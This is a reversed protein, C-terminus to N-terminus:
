LPNSVQTKIEDYVAKSVGQIVKAMQDINFGKVMVCLIYNNGPFYIIGCDHLQFLKNDSIQGYKHAIVVNDDIGKVLGDKFETESLFFLAKESNKNNIYTSNYLVRLFSAYDKITMLYEEKARPPKIGLDNFVKDVFNKNFSNLLDILFGATENSSYRIMYELVDYLNYIKEKKDTTKSTDIKKFVGSSEDFSFKLNLIEPSEESLKFAAIMLPVKNLSAPIFKEKENVGYWAGNNLERFYVSIQKISQNKKFSNVKDIIVTELKPRIYRFNPECDLL